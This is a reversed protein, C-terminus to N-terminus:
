GVESFPLLVPVSGAHALLGQPAWVAGLFSAATQPASLTASCIRLASKTKESWALYRIEPGQTGCAFHLQGDRWLTDGRVRSTFKHGLTSTFLHTGTTVKAPTLVASTQGPDVNYLTGLVTGSEKLTVLVGESANVLLVADPGPSDTHYSYLASARLDLGYVVGDAGGLFVYPRDVAVTFLNDLAVALLWAPNPDASRLDYVLVLRGHGACVLTNADAYRCASITHAQSFLRHRKLVALDYLALTSGAAVAADNAHVSLDEVPHRLAKGLTQSSVPGVPSKCGPIGGLDGAQLVCQAPFRHISVTSDHAGSLAFLSLVPCVASIM